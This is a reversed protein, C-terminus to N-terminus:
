LKKRVRKKQPKRKKKKKVNSDSGQAFTQPPRKLNAALRKLKEASSIGELYSPSLVDCQANEAKYKKCLDFSSVADLGTMIAAYGSKDQLRLVGGVAPADIGAPSLMRGRLAVDAQIADPYTGFSIGWGKLNELDAMLAPNKRRCVETTMDVPIIVGTQSNALSAIKAAAPNPLKLFGQELMNQAAITRAYGSKTGLVVTILKRGNRTASAVLNFGSNCVFGTKMGDAEPMQRLLSNRNALRRKGLPVFDQDFYHAHQPFEKLLVAALVGMDRASTVQRPDFLGNPNAFHSASMGLANAVENMEAAFEPISGSSAEALVYAMDNASYILMAQLAWDVSITKGPPIGVKSPAQSSALESVPIQQDLRLKGERIKKFTVFATMLKTLSAPYWPEGARNSSLLEGTNADFVISPGTATPATIAPQPQQAPAQVSGEAMVTQHTLALLAAGTCFSTTWNL